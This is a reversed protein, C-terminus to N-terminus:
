LVPGLGYRGDAKQVLGEIQLTATIRLTTTVPIGLM